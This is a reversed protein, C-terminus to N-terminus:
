ECECECWCFENYACRKCFKIKKLEPPKEKEIIKNINKFTEELERESEETLEVPIKKKEKPILIEGKLDLGKEKLKYLYFLLQMKSPLLFRSSKKIEGVVVKGNEKKMLDIKMNSIAIEKKDRKYLEEHILRGIDMATNDRDPYLQRSALWVERECVFYYWVLTGTINM